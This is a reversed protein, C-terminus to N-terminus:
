GGRQGGENPPYRLGETRLGGLLGPINMKASIVNM